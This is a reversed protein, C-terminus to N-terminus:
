KILKNTIEIGPPKWRKFNFLHFHDPQPGRGHLCVFCVRLVFLCVLCCVFCLCDFLFCFFLTLCRSLGVLVLLDLLLSSRYIGDLNVALKWLGLCDGGATVTLGLLREGSSIFCWCRLGGGGRFYILLFVPMFYSAGYSESTIRCAGIVKRTIKLPASM